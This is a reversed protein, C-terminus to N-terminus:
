AVAIIKACGAHKVSKILTNSVPTGMEIGVSVLLTHKNHLLAPDNLQLTFSSQPFAQEVAQWASYVTPSYPLANPDILHAPTHDRDTIVGLQFILRYLPYRWPNFLNVQTLLDPVQVVATGTERSISSHLPHRVVSDFNHVDNLHFGELLQRYRSYEIVRKGRLNVEDFLQIHKSLATLKPLLNFNALHCVGIVAKRISSGGKSCNSFESMNQRSLEFRPSNKIAERSPGGKSKIYVKDSGKRTYATVGSIGGIFQIGNKLIAM